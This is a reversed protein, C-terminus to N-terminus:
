EQIRRPIFNGTGAKATIESDEMITTGRVMTLVPRGTLEKGEFLSFDSIHYLNDAHVVSTSEMDLIVLDADAGVGIIGKAPFLGFTRATNYSCVEVLKNISIRKKNVGESLMVPLLTQIGAVGVWAEWFDTKHKKACPAHDSGICKVTGENLADWLKENHERSKRLPPNVKGLIRDVDKACLTLYQPCTEGTIHVGRDQAKKVENAGEKTSIHVIYLPCNTVESFYAVRQISEVECVGPRVDAWDIDNERGERIIKSKLKFFIEVNEAHVLAIAPYGLTSIKEFGCFIIGDDIGILPPVVETGRYPLFFKFSPVGASAMAPIEEVQSETFIAMHFATDVLAHKEIITRKEEFIKILSEPGSLHNIITTVGGAAASKTTSETGEIFDWDPWDIHVHPDILGPIVYNEYADIERKAEPLMATTGIMVIKGKDIAIGAHIVQDITVISCNKIITDVKM